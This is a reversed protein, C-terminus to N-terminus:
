RPRFTVQKPIIMNTTNTNRAFLDDLIPFNSEYQTKQLGLINNLILAHTFFKVEPMYTIDSDESVESSLIKHMVLLKPLYACVGFHCNELPEYQSVFGPSITGM